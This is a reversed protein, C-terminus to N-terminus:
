EIKILFKWRWFARQFILKQGLDPRGSASSFQETPRGPPRGVHVKTCTHVDTSRGTSRSCSCHERNKRPRGSRDVSLSFKSETQVETSRNGLPRFDSRQRDVPGTSRCCDSIESLKWCSNKRVLKTNPKEGIVRKVRTVWNEDGIFLSLTRCSFWYSKCTLTFLKWFNLRKAFLKWQALIELEKLKFCEEVERRFKHVVCDWFYWRRM